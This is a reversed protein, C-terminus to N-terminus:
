VILVAAGMISLIKTPTIGIKIPNPNRPILKNQATKSNWDGESAKKLKNAIIYPSAKLSM